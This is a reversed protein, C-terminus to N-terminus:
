PQEAVQSVYDRFAEESLGLADPFKELQARHLDSLGGNATAVLFAGQAIMRKGDDSLQPAISRVYDAATTQAERALQVQAALDEMSPRSAGIREMHQQVAHLEYQDAVGDAITILVLVRKVTKFFEQQRASRLAQVDIELVDMRFSGRCEQCEIHEGMLDMPIIPIFYLTLFRRVAKHQYGRQLQCQPCYFEGAGRSTTIGRTGVIIM